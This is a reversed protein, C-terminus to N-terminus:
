ARGGGGRKIQDLMAQRAAADQTGTSPASPTSPPLPADPAGLSPKGGAAKQEFKSNDFDPASGPLEGKMGRILLDAAEDSTLPTIGNKKLEEDPVINLEPDLDKDQAYKLVLEVYDELKMNVAAAIKKTDADSMLEARVVEIPRKLGRKPKPSANEQSM